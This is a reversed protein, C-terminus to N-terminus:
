VKLPVRGQLFIMVTTQQQNDTSSLYDCFVENIQMDNDMMNKKEEKPLQAIMAWIQAYIDKSTKKQQSFNGTKKDPCDKSLHGIKKCNFCAWKKMLQSCEDTSMSDVDMANPDKEKKIPFFFNKKGSDNKQGNNKRKFIHQMKQWNSHFKTAKEYWQELTTPPNECTM